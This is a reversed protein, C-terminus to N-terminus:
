ASGIEEWRPLSSTQVAPFWVTVTTGLGVQSELVLRGHSLQVLHKTIALGLGTGEHVRSISAEGRRFPEFIRDLENAAIGIGTDSVVIAIAGDLAATAELRVRGGALTFKVANSLLNLMVQKLAREDVRAMLLDDVTFSLEVERQQAIISLVSVCDEILRAVSVDEPYLEYRGAEIKSLDLIENIMDLLLRGSRHVDKAYEVYKPSGIPGFVGNVMLDSFGIIANLPTRLEHSMTSLFDTKARNAEEALSKAEILAAERAKEKTVDLIVLLLGGDSLRQERIQEWRGDNLRREVVPGPNRHQELRRAIYTEAEEAGLDFRSRRVNQRLITEFSVGPVLIDAIIEHIQRYTPNAVVLQDAEDFLAIGAELGSIANLLRADTRRAQILEAEGREREAIEAKLRHALESQRGAFSAVLAISAILGVFVTIIAALPLPSLQMLSKPTDSLPFFLSAHMATYHMGAVAFGMVTAAILTAPISSFQSARFRYRIGLSILALGIATFVSAAAWIPDYRLLAQPEMAAMGSYHMAGIGAGMLVAGVSLRLPGPQENRGIVSLAVGSALIGPIISLITGIPNYGVGCPLSFALMGVFHMAWIGGGM